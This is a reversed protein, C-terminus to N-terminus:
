AVLLQVLEVLVQGHCPNPICSCGLRKDKLEHLCELLQPQNRIWLRYKEIVEKRTGDPGIEFKNGWKTGRGIYVDYEERHRNVVRTM